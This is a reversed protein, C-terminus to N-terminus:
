QLPYVVGAFSLLDRMRPDGGAMTPRWNPDRNLFSMPDGLLTGIFVEGVIRGGVPGLRAGLRMVEAEKLVYYWLPTNRRLGADPVDALDAAALMPAGMVRAVAQGSPLGFTLHRLLNRTALSAADGAPAGLLRFLVSSLKGDIRKNRRALGDGFDFFTQWDIFRRPARKGGRLDAPDAAAPDLTHDFILGFFEGGPAAGFNARYSPRVQSHGFRYAAVAFEVPIFPDTGWRYCKLGDDLITRTKNGGITAPLFDHLVVWQYHWRTRQQAETFVAGPAMGPTEAKVEAVFANHLKLM